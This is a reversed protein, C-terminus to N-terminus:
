SLWGAPRAHREIWGRIAVGGDERPMRHLMLVGHDEPLMGAPFATRANALAGTLNAHEVGKTTSLDIGLLWTESLDSAMFSDEPSLDANQFSARRSTHSDSLMAGHLNCGCLNAHDFRADCLFADQFITGYMTTSTFDAGEALVGSFNVEDLAESESFNAERLYTLRGDDSRAFTSRELWARRFDVRGCQAGSFNVENFFGVLRAKELQAAVFRTGTGDCDLTAGILSAHDFVCHRLTADSWEVYDLIAHSFDHETLDVRQDLRSHAFHQRSHDSSEHLRAALALAADRERVQNAEETRDRHRALAVIFGIGALLCAAGATVLASGLAVFKTSKALMICLLGGLICLAGIWFLWRSVSKERLPVASHLRSRLSSLVSGRSTTM